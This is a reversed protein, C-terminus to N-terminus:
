SDSAAPTTMLRRRSWVEFALAAPILIGLWILYAILVPAPMTANSITLSEAPVATSPLVFPFTTAGATAVIGAVAMCGLPWVRRIPGRWAFFLAVLLSVAAFIPLVLLPWSGLLTLQPYQGLFQEIYAGSVAFSTGKLPDTLAAHSAAYGVAYGTLQTAWIAGGIFILLALIGSPLLLGRAREAVAETAGSAVRAAGLFVGLAVALLGPVVVEYPTFRRAFGSWIPDLNASFHLPVGSITTGVGIGMVLLAALSALAWLGDWGGRRREAVLARYSHGIPGVLVAVIIFLLVLWLGSFLTAHFLPWWAGVVAGGILVVWVAHGTMPPAARALIMRREDEDKALYPLLVALGLEGAVVIGLAAVFGGLILWWFLDLASPM